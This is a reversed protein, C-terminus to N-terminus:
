AMALHGFLLNRAQRSTAFRRLMWPLQANRMTRFIQGNGKLCSLYPILVSGTPILAGLDPSICPLLRSLAQKRLFLASFILAFDTGDLHIEAIHKSHATLMQKDKSVMLKIYKSHNSSLCVVRKYIMLMICSVTGCTRTILDGNNPIDWFYFKPIHGFGSPSYIELSINNSYM